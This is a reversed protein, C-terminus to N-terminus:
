VAVAQRGTHSYVSNLIERCESVSYKSVVTALVADGYGKRLINMDEAWEVCSANGMVRHLGLLRSFADLDKECAKMILDLYNINAMDRAVVVPSPLDNGAVGQYDAYRQKLQNFFASGDEPALSVLQTRGDLERPTSIEDPTPKMAVPKAAVSVVGAVPEPESKAKIKTPQQQMPAAQAPASQSAFAAQTPTAEQGSPVASRNVEGTTAQLASDGGPVEATSNKPQSQPANVKEKSAGSVRESVPPQGTTAEASFVSDKIGEESLGTDAAPKRRLKNFFSSILGTVRGSVPDKGSFQSDFGDNARDCHSMAEAVYEALLDADSEGGKVQETGKAEKNHEHVDGPTKFFAGPAVASTEPKKEVEEENVSVEKDESKPEPTKEIKEEPKKVCEPTSAACVEEKKEEEVVQQGAPDETEAVPKEETGKVQERKMKDSVFIASGKEVRWTPLNRGSPHSTQNAQKHNGSDRVPAKMPVPQTAGNLLQAYEDEKAAVEEPTQERKEPGDWPFEDRAVSDTWSGEEVDTAIVQLEFNEDILSSDLATAAGYFKLAQHPMGAKVLLKAMALNEDPHETNKEIVTNFLRMARTPQGKSVIKAAFVVEKGIPPIEPASWVMKSAERHFGSDFLVQVVKKRTKWDEPNQEVLKMLLEQAGDLGNISNTM